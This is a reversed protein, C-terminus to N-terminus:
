ARLIIAYMSTNLPKSRLSLSFHDNCHLFL